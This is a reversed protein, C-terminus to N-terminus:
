LDATILVLPYQSCVVMYLEDDKNTSRVCDSNTYSCCAKEGSGLAGQSFRSFPQIQTSNNCENAITNSVYSFYNPGANYPQQRLWYTTKHKDDPNRVNNYVCFAHVEMALYGLIACLTIKKIISM